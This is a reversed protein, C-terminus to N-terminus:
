LMKTATDAASIGSLMRPRLRRRDFAATNARLTVEDAAGGAYYDYADPPMCEQALAEFDNLSLAKMLFSRNEMLIGLAPSTPLPSAPSRLGGSKWVGTRTDYAGGRQLDELVSCPRNRAGEPIASYVPARLQ